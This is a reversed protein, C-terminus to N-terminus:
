PQKVAEQARKFAALARYFEAVESTVSVSFNINEQKLLDWHDLNNRKERAAADTSAKAFVEAGELAEEAETTSMAILASKGTAKLTAESPHLMFEKMSPSIPSGFKERTMKVIANARNLTSEWSVPGVPSTTLAKIEALNAKGTWYDRQQAAEERSMGQTTQNNQCITMAEKAAVKAERWTSENKAAKARAFLAEIRTKWEPVPRAGHAHAEQETKYKAVARAFDATERTVRISFNITGQANWNVAPKKRLIEVFGKTDDAVDDAVSAIQLAEAASAYAYAYASASAYAYASAYASDYESFSVSDYASAPVSVSAYAYASSYAYAYAYASAYAYYSSYIYAYVSAYVSAYAYAYASERVALMRAESPHEIFAKMAQSVTPWVKDEIMAVMADARDRKAKWDDICPSTGLAKVEAVGAKEMWYDKQITAEEQSVALPSRGAKIAEIVGNWYNSVENAAAKARNWGIESKAARARAFAAEGEGRKEAIIRQVEAQAATQAKELASKEKQLYQERQETAEEKTFSLLSRGTQIDEIVGNWYASAASSLSAAERWANASGQKNAQSFVEEVERRKEEVITQIEIRKQELAKERAAKEIEAEKAQREKEKTNEAREHDVKAIAEAVRQNRDYKKQDLEIGEVLDKGVEHFQSYITKLAYEKAEKAKQIANKTQVAVDQYTKLTDKCQQVKQDALDGATQLEQLRAQFRKKIAILKSKAEESNEEQQVQEEIAKLAKKAEELQASAPAIKELAATEAREAVEIQEDYWTKPIFSSSSFLSNDAKEKGQPTENSQIPTTSELSEKEIAITKAQPPLPSTPVIREVAQKVTGSNLRLAEAQKVIVEAKDYATKGTVDFNNGENTKGEAHATAAQTYDEGAQTNLLAAERWLAALETKGVAEAEFAKGTQEASRRLGSSVNSWSFGEATKGTVYAETSKISFESLQVTRAAAKHWSMSLGTKGEIKAAIAKGTQEAARSYGVGTNYLSTAESTKSTTGIAYAAAAETYYEISQMNQSAAEHWLRALEIKGALAAEIANVTQDAACRLSSSAGNWSFGERTKGASYAMAAKTFLESAQISQQAINRLSTALETKGSAEAQIAKRIQEIASLLASRVGRWQSIEEKKGAATAATEKKQAEEAAVTWKTIEAQEKARNYALVANLENQQASALEAEASARYTTNGAKIAKLVSRATGVRADALAEALKKVSYDASGKSEDAERKAKDYVSKCQDLDIEALDKAAEWERAEQLAAESSGGVVLGRNQSMAAVKALCSTYINNCIEDELFTNTSNEEAVENPISTLAIDSGSKGLLAASSPSPSHASATTSVATKGPSECVGKLDEIGEQITKLEAPDMMLYCSLDKGSNNCNTTPLEYNTSPETQQSVQFNLRNENQAILLSSNALTALFLSPIIKKM